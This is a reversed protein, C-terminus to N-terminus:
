QSGGDPPLSALTGESRPRLARFFEANCCFEPPESSADIELPALWDRCQRENCCGICRTRAEYWAMGRDPRVAIAADVGVRVMMRDMLEAHYLIRELMPRRFCFDTM